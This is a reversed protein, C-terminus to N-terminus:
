SISPKIFLFGHGKYTVPEDVHGNLNHKLLENNCYAIFHKLDNINDKNSTIYEAFVYGGDDTEIDINNICNYSDCKHLSRLKKQFLFAADAMDDGVSETIIGNFMNRLAQKHPEKLIDKVEELDYFKGKKTLEMDSLGKRIYGHYDEKYNAIYVENYTGHYPIDNESHDWIKEYMDIYTVGTFRINDIIIKAEEKTEMFAQDIHSVGRDFGGGPIRYYKDDRRVMFLKGDKMVLTEVRGRLIKDPYDNSTVICNWDGDTNYYGGQKIAKDLTMSTDIPTRNSGM